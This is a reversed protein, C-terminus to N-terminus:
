NLLWSGTWHHITFSKPFKNPDNLKIKRRKHWKIPYFVESKHVHIVCKSKNRTLRLYKQVTKHLLTPGTTKWVSRRDQTTKHINKKINEVLYIWFPNKPTSIMIANGVRMLGDSHQQNEEGFICFHNKSQQNLHELQDLPKLSEM